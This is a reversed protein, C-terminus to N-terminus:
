HLVSTPKQFSFDPNNSIVDYVPTIFEEISALLPEMDKSKTFAPGQTHYINFYLKLYAQNAKLIGSANIDMDVIFLKQNFFGQKQLENFLTQKIRKRFQNVRRTIPYEDEFYDQNYVTTITQISISHKTTLEITVPLQNIELQYKRKNVTM